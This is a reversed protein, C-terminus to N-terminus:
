ICIVYSEIAELLNNDSKQLFFVFLKKAKKM